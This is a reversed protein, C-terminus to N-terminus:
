WLFVDCHYINENETFIYILTVKSLRFKPKQLLHVNETTQYLM